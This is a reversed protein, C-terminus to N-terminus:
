TKRTRGSTLLRHYELEIARYADPDAHQDTLDRARKLERLRTQRQREALVILMRELREQWPAPRVREPLPAPDPTSLASSEILGTALSRLAPDDLRVMLNEFSPSRGESQLDYCAQLITRLPEDRLTSVAVRPLLSTIASPETLVIQILEL